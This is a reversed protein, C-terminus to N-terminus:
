RAGSRRRTALGVVPGGALHGLWTMSWCDHDDSAHVHDCFQIFEQVPHMIAESDDTSLISLIRHYLGKKEVPCSGPPFVRSINSLKAPCSSTELCADERDHGPGDPPRKRLFADIGEQADYFLANEAMIPVATEYAAAEDQGEIAYFAKKGTRIVLPSMSAITDTFSKITQDLDARAVVRNVLGLELAPPGLHSCRDPANGHSTQGPDRPRSPGHADHLLPRDQRGPHCFDGRRGRRGPRLRGRAPLGGGHRDRASACDGAPAAPAIGADGAHLARVARSLGERDQRGDGGLDHGSCFAPGTAGLVVVRAIPDAAIARVASELQSLLGFSLANRKEPRNLTFRVVSGDSELLLNSSMIVRPSCSSRFASILILILIVILFIILLVLLLLLM